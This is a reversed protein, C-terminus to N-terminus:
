EARRVFIQFDMGQDSHFLDRSEFKLWKAMKLSETFTVDIFAIIIGFIGVAEETWHRMARLFASRHGLVAKNTWMWIEVYTDVLRRRKFGAIAVLNGDVLISNVM